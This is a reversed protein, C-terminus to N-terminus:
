MTPPPTVGPRNPRHYSGAMNMLVNIRQQTSPHTSFLDNSESEYTKGGFSLRSKSSVLDNAVHRPNVIYMHQMARNNARLPVDAMELKRLANALGEPYRTLEAATADAMFERQRSVAMQLLLSFIPALIALVIGVALFIIGLSNDDRNRRNDSGGGFWTMRLFFDALLPILGAILGISTMFQIDYNRIHGMEHAVVGQLEDRDLRKLLGTTVVVTAHLPDNGTAFANPSVDDVVMIRPLPIGGAIAMEEVVNRLMRDEQDTAERAGAISLMIDPGSVRAVLATIVGLLIAGATGWYWNRPSWIGVIVTGLAALLLTLLFAYILSARKNAEIQQKLTRKM